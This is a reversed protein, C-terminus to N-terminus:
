PKISKLSDFLGKGFGTAKKAVDTASQTTQAIPDYGLAATCDAYVGTPRTDASVVKAVTSLSASNGVRACELTLTEAASKDGKDREVAIMPALFPARDNLRTAGLQLTALAADFERRESQYSARWLYGSRTALETSTWAIARQEALPRQGSHEYWSGLALNLHASSPDGHAAAGLLAPAKTMATSADNSALAIMVDIGARDATLLAGSPGDRLIEKFRQSRATKDRRAGANQQLHARVADLRQEPTDYDAGFPALSGLASDIVSSQASASAGGVVQDVQTGTQVTPQLARTRALAAARVADMRQSRVVNAAQLKSFLTSFAATDYGAAKTMDAGTLDASREQDRNWSPAVLDAWMTGMVQTNDLVAPSFALLQTSAGAAPGVATAVVTSSEVTVPLDQMLNKHQADAHVVHALEHSLAAALEDESEIQRLAETGVVINGFTDTFISFEATSRILITPAAPPSAQTALLRAVISALYDTAAADTVFVMDRALYGHLADLSATSAGTAAAHATGIWLVLLAAALANSARRLAITAALSRQMAAMRATVADGARV